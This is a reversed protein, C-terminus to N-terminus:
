FDVQLFDNNPQKQRKPKQNESHIVKIDNDTVPNKVVFGDNEFMFTRFLNNGLGTKICPDRSDWYERSAFGKNINNRFITDTIWHNSNTKYVSGCLKLISFKSLSYKFKRDFSIVQKVILPDEIVARILTLITFVKTGNNTTLNITFKGEKVAKSCNQPMLSKFEPISKIFLFYKTAEDTTVRIGKSFTFSLSHTKDTFHSANKIQYFCAQSTFNKVVNGESDCLNYDIYAM